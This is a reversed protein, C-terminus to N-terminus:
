NCQPDLPLLNWSRHSDGLRRVAKHWYTDGGGTLLATTDTIQPLCVWTARNIEEELQGEGWCSYGIFFRVCGATPYGAALYDRMAGFDGGIYLNDCFRRAGPLIDDGLTHIFFLRDQGLPGGCFVPIKETVKVGDLLDDLNYGSSTNMVVGTAGDRPVYDIVTIVGHSFYSERLFPEAILLGGAVPAKRPSDVKFLMAALDKMVSYNNSTSAEQAPNAGPM